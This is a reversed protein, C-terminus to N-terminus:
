ERITAKERIQNTYQEDIHMMDIFEQVSNFGGLMQRLSVTKDAIQQNVGPLQLLEDISCLNINILNSSNESEMKNNKKSYSVYSANDLIDENNKVISEDYYESEFPDEYAKNSVTEYDRYGMTSHYTSDFHTDNGSSEIFDKGRYEKRVQKRIDDLDKEEIGNTLIYDRRILYEKRVVFSHILGILLSLLWILITLTSLFGFPLELIGIISVIYVLLYVVGIIKWKTTKTKTGIYFFSIFSFGFLSLLIWWSNLIEWILGRRTTSM